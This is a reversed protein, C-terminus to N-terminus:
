GSEIRELADCLLAADSGMAKVDRPGGAAGGECCDGERRKDADGRRIENM